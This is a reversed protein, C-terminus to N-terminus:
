FLNIVKDFARPDVQFNRQSTIMDAIWKINEQERHKLRTWAYFAAFHSQGEFARKYKAVGAETLVDVFPKGEHNGGERSTKFCSYYDRYPLLAEGLQTMHVQEDNDGVDSFTRPGGQRNHRAPPHTCNPYLRGFTCFLAKRQEDRANANNIDQGWSNIVVNIARVDAEFELLDKMIEATEGGLKQTYHFFDELWLNEIAAKILHIDVENFM